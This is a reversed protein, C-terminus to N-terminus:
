RAVTGVQHNTCSPRSALRRVPDPPVRWPAGAPGKIFADRWIEFGDATERWAVRGSPIKNSPLRAWHGRVRFRCTLRRGSHVDSGVASTTGIQIEWANLPWKQGSLREYERRIPRPPHHHTVGRATILHVAEVLIRPWSHTEIASWEANVESEFRGDAHIRLHVIDHEGTQAPDVALARETVYVLTRAEWLEGRSVEVLCTAELHICRGGGEIFTLNFPTTEIMTSEFPLPPLPLDGPKGSDGEVIDLLTDRDLTFIPAGRTMEAFALPFGIDRPLRSWLREDPIPWSRYVLSYPIRSGPRSLAAWLRKADPTMLRAYTHLASAGDARLEVGPPYTTRRQEHESTGVVHEPKRLLSSSGASDSTGGRTPEVVRRHGGNSVRRRDSPRALKARRKGKHKGVTEKTSV